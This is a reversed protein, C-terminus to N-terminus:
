HEIEELDPFACSVGGQCHMAPSNWGGDALTAIRAGHSFIREMFLNDLLQVSTRQQEFQAFFGTYSDFQSLVMRAHESKGSYTYSCEFLM